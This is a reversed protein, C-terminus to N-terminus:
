GALPAVIIKYPKPSLGKLTNSAYELAPTWKGYKEVFAKAKKADGDLQVQIIDKLMDNAVQPFKKPDISLKGNEKFNIAGREIFYNLQMVERFRHAQTLDPKSLPLQRVAWTLYIQNAQEETYKDINQLYNTAVLSGIDAKNEEIIDGMGQGLSAKKDNGELTSMPGLSHSLEHGITFWHDAEKNYWKHQDIEVLANLIKKRREPDETRRVQKHFVNRRGSNLMVSFKDDNPLNQALTIGPRCSAYDGSLYILDVDALTQPIKEGPNTMDISQKYRENMPMLLSLDKLFGEYEALKESAPLDVIGVRVGVFDKAKAVINNEKLKQALEKDAVVAGSLGDAYSERGITFELPSDKLNAWMQDAKYSFEPDDSVLAQAQMKLYDAFGKHTTEKAALLLEKAAKNYEAAYEVNYPIAELKKGNRKVVTNNGLIASAQEINNKLYDILEQKSLDEPYVNKGPALKKNKFLRVPKDSLGDNGEIGKFIDFLVLAKQAHTDGKEAAQQLQKRAEINCSCDQKLFVTDFAKAAKVLHILAKKNGDDLQKYAEQPKLVYQVSQNNIINDLKSEPIAISKSSFFNVQSIKLKGTLELYEDISKLKKLGAQTQSATQKSSNSKFNTVKNYAFTKTINM